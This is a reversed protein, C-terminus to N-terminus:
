SRARAQLVPMLELYPRVAPSDSHQFADATGDFDVVGDHLMIIRPGLRFLLATDHTVIITTRRQGDDAPRNHVETILNQIQESRGPDLGTTPEDYFMLVPDLALARAIAVRKAMGGSVQDRDMPAVEDFGLGVSELVQRVRDHIQQDNMGKVDSLGLAVNEYVTGSFLANKQFVIAWHRRLQDMGAEDLTALNVLPAGPLEHDAMCVRGKDPRLAGILHKLLVSKGGGSAGVIAAMEGRRISLSVGRLVHNRGFSKHLGEVLVELPRPDDVTLSPEASLIARM